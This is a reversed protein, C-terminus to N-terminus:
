VQSAIWKKRMMQLVRFPQCLKDGDTVATGDRSMRIRLDLEKCGMERRLAERAQRAAEASLMPESLDVLTLNERFKTEQEILRKGLTGKVDAALGIIESATAQRENLVPFIKAVTKVGFGPIGDINDSADGVLAKMLRYNEPLVGYDSIFLGSDSMKGKVPSWVKVQSSRTAGCVVCPTCVDPSSHPEGNNCEDDFGAERILQLMDKDTTVIVVDDSSNIALHAILDDAEVGDARVQPVGLLGLYDRCAAFQRRLNEQDEVVTEGLDDKRNMRIKRGAKYESMISRRRQSGGEGDWVILVNSPRNDNLLKVVSKLM